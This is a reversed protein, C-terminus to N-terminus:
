SAAARESQQDPAKGGAEGRRGSGASAARSARALSPPGNAHSVRQRENAASDIHNQSAVEGTRARESRGRGRRELVRAVPPDVCLVTGRRGRPPHRAASSSRCAPPAPAAPEVDPLRRTSLRHAHEIQAAADREPMADAHEHDELLGSSRGRAGAFPARQRKVADHASPDRRAHPDFAAGPREIEGIAQRTLRAVVADRPQPGDLGSAAAPTSMKRPACTM